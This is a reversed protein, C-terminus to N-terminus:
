SGVWMAPSMVLSFKAARCGGALHCSIGNRLITERIGLHRIVFCYSPTGVTVVRAHNTLCSYLFYRSSILQPYKPSTHDTLNRVPDNSASMTSAMHSQSNKLAVWFQVNYIYIHIYIHLTIYYLSM